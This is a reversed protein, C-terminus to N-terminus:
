ILPANLITACGRGAKKSQYLAADADRLMQEPSLDRYGDSLVIGISASVSCGSDPAFPVAEIRDIIRRSLSELTAASQLGTLILVFEDGGIRAAIDHSRTAERLVRGVDCLVRDGAEHGLTDNVQKFRDLDLHILSFGRRDDCHLPDFAARYALNLAIDMGRRNSLGTLPDTHAKIEAARRAEELQTNFSSLEGLVARNAEYLFLLEMALEPPAFDSDTLGARSVAEILAIGFGLNVLVSGDATEVAHGRLSLGPPETMRLFLREGHVAARRITAALDQDMGPRADRFLDGVAGQSPGIIKRLTPGVGIVGGDPSLHLHMPLLQEIVARETIRLGTQIDM